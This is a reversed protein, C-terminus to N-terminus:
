KLLGSMLFPMVFIYFVVVAGGAAIAIWLLAKRLM